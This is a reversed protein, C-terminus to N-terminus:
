DHLDTMDHPCRCLVFLPHRLQSQCAFPLAIKCTKGKLLALRQLRAWFFNAETEIGPCGAVNQGHKECLQLVDEAWPNTPDQWELVAVVLEM